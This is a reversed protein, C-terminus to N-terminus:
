KVLLFVALIAVSSIISTTWGMAKSHSWGSAAIAVLLGIIGISFSIGLLPRIATTSRAATALPADPHAIAVLASSAMVAVIFSVAAVASGHAAVLSGRSKGGVTLFLALMTAAFGGFFASVSGLQTALATLYDPNLPTMGYDGEKSLM